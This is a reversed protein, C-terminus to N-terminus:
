GRIVSALLLPLTNALVAWAAAAIGIVLPAIGARAGRRRAGDGLIIAAVPAVLMILVAIVGARVLVDVSSTEPSDGALASGIIFAAVIGVPILVVAVWAGILWPRADVGRASRAATAPSM